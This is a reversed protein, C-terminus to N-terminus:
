SVPYSQKATLPIIHAGHDQYFRDTLKAAEWKVRMQEFEDEPYRVEVWYEDQDTLSPVIGVVEIQPFLAKLEKGYEHALQQNRNM